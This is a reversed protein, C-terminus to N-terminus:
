GWTLWLRVRRLRSSELMRERKALVSDVNHHFLIKPFGDTCRLYEFTATTDAIACDFEKEATKRQVAEFMEGSRALLISRPTPSLLGLKYRVWPVRPKERLICTVDACLATMAPVYRLEDESDIFSLLSIEHQKALQKIVNYNTVCSGTRLPYPLWSSLFLITM